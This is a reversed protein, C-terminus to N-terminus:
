PPIPATEDAATARADLHLEGLVPLDLAVRVTVTVLGEARAVTSSASPLVRRVAAGVAADPEGRAAVRAGAQAADACSIRRDLAVVVALCGALLLGVAPLAVAAEATVMGAQRDDIRV